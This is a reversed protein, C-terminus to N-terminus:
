SFLLKIKGWLSRKSLEATLQEDSISFASKTGNQANQATDTKGNNNEAANEQKETEGPDEKAATLKLLQSSQNDIIKAQQAVTATLGNIQNTKNLVENQLFEINKQLEEQREELDHARQEAQELKYLELDINQTPAQMPTNNANWTALWVLGNEKVYITNKKGRTIYDSESLGNEKVEELMKKIRVMVGNKTMGYELALQNVTKYHGQIEKTEESNQNM